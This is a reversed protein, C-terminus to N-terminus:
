PKGSRKTGSSFALYEAVRPFIKQLFDFAGLQWPEFAIRREQEIARIIGLAAQQSGINPILSGVAPIRDETQTNTKFYESDTIKGPFFACAKLSTGYFDARLAESFGNLAWRSAIYGIAGPWVQRSAPSCVSLIFGRNEALMPGIFAKTLFAATFYPTNMQDILDQYSSEEIFRWAGAGASHILIHPVGHAKLVTKALTEVQEPQSLDAPYAWAQGGQQSIEQATQELKAKNRAVLIIKAGRKALELSTARGIGSSAGSVVCLTNAIYM